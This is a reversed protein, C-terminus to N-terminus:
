QSRTSDLLEKLRESTRGWFKRASSLASPLLTNKTGTGSSVKVRVPPLRVDDGTMASVCSVDLDIFASRQLMDDVSAAACAVEGRTDGEEAHNGALPESLLAALSLKSRSGADPLFDAYVLSDAFSISQLVVGYSKKMFLSLSRVTLKSLM